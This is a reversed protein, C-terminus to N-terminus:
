PPRRPPLGGTFHGRVAPVSSSCGPVSSRLELWTGVGLFGRPHGQEGDWLCHCRAPTTGWRLPTLFLGLVGKSCRM